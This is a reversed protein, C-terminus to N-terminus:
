RLFISSSCGELTPHVMDSGAFINEFHTKVEAKVEEVEEVWGSAVLQNRRYKHRMCAHFYKSNSDGVKLWRAGAKLKHLDKYDYFSVKNKMQFIYDLETM